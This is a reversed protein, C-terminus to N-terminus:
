TMAPNYPEALGYVQAIKEPTLMTKPEGEADVRAEKMLIVKDAYRQVLALDHLVALVGWGERALEQLMGMLAIQHKLDLAATPEDLILWRVGNSPADWVQALARAIMTRQREGGSLTLYNRGSLAMLDMRAMAANAIDADQAPSTVGQYPARGIAVVEHVLFPFSLRHQQSVVARQRALEQIPISQIDRDCFLARGSQPREAGTLLSLATSKGAGNPGCIATLCGPECMLSADVLITAKGRVVSANELALSM